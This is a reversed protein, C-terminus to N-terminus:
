NVKQLLDMCNMRCEILTKPTKQATSLDVIALLKGGKRMCMAQAIKKVKQKSDVQSQTMELPKEDKRVTIHHTFTLTASFILTQLQHSSREKSPNEM